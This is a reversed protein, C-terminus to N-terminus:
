AHSALKSLQALFEAGPRRFLPFRAKMAAVRTAAQEVRARSLEGREVARLLARHAELQLVPQHCILLQDCGARIARVSADEIGYHDAVAKMELDDSVIVGDYRFHHRMIPEIIKESLTAPHDPDLAAFLVHATMISAVGARCAAQFPVLEVAKLREFDHALRPLEFHSDQNTDGHGPFHKGCAAVGSSELGEILAVGLAAVEAPDRSFARDGIVPNDPNTDVDLVPAYDQRFGLLRLAEGLRAGASRVIAPDHRDGLSRMPPLQPFPPGLRQVRGGEQDIATWLPEPAIAQLEDLLGAMQELSTINHKFLIVGGTVGTAILERFDAPISPGHFGGVILQGIQRSLDPALDQADLAM